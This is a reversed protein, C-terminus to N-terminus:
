TQWICDGVFPNVKQRSHIKGYLDPDRPLAPIVYLSRALAKEGRSVSYRKSLMSMFMANRGLIAWSQREPVAPGIDLGVREKVQVAFWSILSRQRYRLCDVAAPKVARGRCDAKFM